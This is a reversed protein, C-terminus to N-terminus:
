VGGDIPLPAIRVRVPKFSPDLAGRVQRLVTIISLAPRRRGDTTVMWRFPLGPEAPEIRIERGLGEVLYAGDEVRRVRGIVRWAVLSHQLVRLFPDPSPTPPLRM